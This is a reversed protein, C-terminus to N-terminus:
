SVRSNQLFSLVKQKQMQLFSLVKQQQMETVMAMCAAIVNCFVILSVCYHYKNCGPLLYFVFELISYHILYLTFSYDAMFQIVKFVPSPVHIKSGEGICMWLLFLGFVYLSNKLDYDLSFVQLRKCFLYAIGAFAICLFGFSIRKIFGSEVGYCFLVCALCGLSWMISLDYKNVLPLVGFVALLSVNFLGPRSIIKSLFLWGFTLYLWWEISLTWFVRASGFTAVGIYPFGQLMFVNRIFTRFNFDSHHSYAGTKIALFDILAILLIAPLYGSFIRCFRALVFDFFGYNPNKKKHNKVSLSILFGSLIFFVLVAMNQMKWGDAKQFGGYSLAHGVLVAQAAFVRLLNLLFCNLHSVKVM